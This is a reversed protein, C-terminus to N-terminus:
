KIWEFNDTGAGIEFHCKVIGLDVKIEPGIGATKARVKYDDALEFKFKQQNTATPAMMAYRVGRQFWKPMSQWDDCVQEPQKSQREKGQTAGYGLAIVLALKEGKELTYAGPIKKYTLAVWCTNLGLRQAELVLKEGYYGCLEDLKKRKKGALVLYNTVNEFKGYSALKSSFALPEDTVLQIHLRAEKNYQAILAELREKVEAELPKDLYQRVSHRAKVAEFIDM